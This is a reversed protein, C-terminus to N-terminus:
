FYSHYTEVAAMLIKDGIHTSQKGVRDRGIQYKAADKVIYYQYVKKIWEWLALALYSMNELRNSDFDPNDLIRKKLLVFRDDPITKLNLERVIKM